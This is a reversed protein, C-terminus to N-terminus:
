ELGAKECMSTVCRLYQVTIYKKKPDLTGIVSVRHGSVLVQSVTVVYYRIIM